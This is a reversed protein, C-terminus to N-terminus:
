IRDLLELFEEKSMGVDSLIEKLIGRGLEEGPHIPIVTSRGDPHRMFLHSGKQRVPQFGIKSLAKVVKEASVPRL